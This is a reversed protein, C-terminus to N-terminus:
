TAGRLPRVVRCHRATLNDCYLEEPTKGDLTRHPRTQNYFTLYREVGQRAASISDYAWLYVEEYKVSRWLREVFVNDRWCGTGDMSIQIGHDKLLGTFEQCTFQCGQDTNCIDPNGYSVLAEQVAEICFDTTLTNSLRWALVRRSAWDLVAFLSVVGRTLLQPKWETIQTPHVGFQTALEALTKEGKVAAFAVQTKFAAGHHRRTRKM